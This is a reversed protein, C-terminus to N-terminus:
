GWKFPISQKLKQQILLKKVLLNTQHINNQSNKDTNLFSSLLLKMKNLSSTSAPNKIREFYKDFLRITDQIDLNKKEIKLLDGNIVTILLNVSIFLLITLNEQLKM